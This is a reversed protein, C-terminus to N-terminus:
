GLERGSFEPLPFRGKPINHVSCASTFKTSIDNRYVIYSSHSKFFESTSLNGEMDGRQELTKTCRRQRRNHHLFSMWEDDDENNKKSTAHLNSCKFEWLYHPLMSLTYHTKNSIEKEKWNYFFKSFRNLNSSTVAM